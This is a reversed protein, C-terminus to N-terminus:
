LNHPPAALGLATAEALRALQVAITGVGGAAGSVVLTDDPGPAVAETAAYAPAGVVFLAGAVEWAVGPARARGAAPAWSPRAPGTTPSASGRTASQSAPSATPWRTSGGRLTAARGRPFPQRGASTCCDGASPPRAPPSGPPGSGCSWRDRTRSRVPFM